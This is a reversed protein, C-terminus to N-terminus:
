KCIICDFKAPIIVPDNTSAQSGDELRIDGYLELRYYRNEPFTKGGLGSSTSNGNNYIPTESKFSGNDSRYQLYVGDGRVYATSGKRVIYECYVVDTAIGTDKWVWKLLAGYGQMDVPEGTQIRKTHRAIYCGM